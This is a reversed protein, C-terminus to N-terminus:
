VMGVVFRLVIELVLPHWTSYIVRCDYVSILSYFNKVKLTGIIKQAAMRKAAKGNRNTACATACVNVGTVKAEVTFMGDKKSLPFEAKWNYFQCLEQLERVPHLQLKSFSIVPDMFSLVMKWVRNLDFGTDLFIAGVSAEVLDGLM